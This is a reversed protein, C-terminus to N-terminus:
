RQLDKMTTAYKTHESLTIVYIVSQTSFLEIM